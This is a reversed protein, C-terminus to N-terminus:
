QNLKQQPSLWLLWRSEHSYQKLLPLLIHNIMLPNQYLLESVMGQRNDPMTTTIADSAMSLPYYRLLSIEQFPWKTKKGFIINLTEYKGREYYTSYTYVTYRLKM